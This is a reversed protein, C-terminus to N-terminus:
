SRPYSKSKDYIVEMNWHRSLPWSTYNYLKNFQTLFVLSHAGKRKWYPVYFGNGVGIDLVRKGQVNINNKKLLRTLVSSRAKYLWQNYEIGIGICGVGVLSFDRSLREQWYKEPQYESM